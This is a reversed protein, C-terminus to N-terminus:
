GRRWEATVTLEAGAPLRHANLVPGSHEIFICFSKLDALHAADLPETSSGCYFWLEELGPFARAVHALGALHRPEELFLRRVQPLPAASAWATLSEDTVRLERLAPLHELALRGSAATDTGFYSM